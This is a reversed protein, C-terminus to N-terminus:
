SSSPSWLVTIEVDQDISINGGEGLRIGGEGFSVEEVLRAGTTPLTAPLTLKMVLNTEATGIPNQINFLRIVAAAVPKGIILKYVTIDENDAGLATGNTTSNAANVHTFRLAEAM